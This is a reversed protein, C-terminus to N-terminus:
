NDEEEEFFDDEFEWDEFEDEFIDEDEFNNPKYEKLYKYIDYVVFGVIGLGILYLLKKKM